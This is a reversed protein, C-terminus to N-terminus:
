GYKKKPPPTAASNSPQDTSNSNETPVSSVPANQLTPNVGFPTGSPYPRGNLRDRWANVSETDATEPEFEIDATSVFGNPARHTLSHVKPLATLNGIGIQVRAFRYDSRVHTRSDIELVVAGYPSFLRNFEEWRWLDYPSRFLTTYPFLTM